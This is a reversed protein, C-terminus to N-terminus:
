ERCNRRTSYIKKVVISKKGGPRERINGKVEVQQHMLNLLKQTLNNHEVDYVEETDTYIAVDIIKGNEDWNNPMIVGTIDFEQRLQKM